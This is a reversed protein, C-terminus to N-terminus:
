DMLTSVPAVEKYIYTSFSNVEHQPETGTKGAPYLMPEALPALDPIVGDLYMQVTAEVGLLRARLSGLRMEINEFGFLKNEKYWQVRYVRIFRDLDAVTEPIVRIIEALAAKDGSLYAKRLEISLTAKNKLVACLASLSDFVYGFTPDDRHPALTKECEAYFEKYSPHIWRDARGCLPDGYLLWKSPNFALSSNIDKGDPVMNPIDMLLFTELSTGFLDGFVPAIDLEGLIGRNLKEAYMLLGPLAAFQSAENGDDGWATVTM